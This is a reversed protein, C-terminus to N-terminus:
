SFLLTFDNIGSVQPSEAGDFSGCRWIKKESVASYKQYLTAFVWLIDKYSM